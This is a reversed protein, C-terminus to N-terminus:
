PSLPGEPTLQQFKKGTLDFDAPIFNTITGDPLEGNKIFRASNNKYCVAIGPLRGETSKFLPVASAGSAYTVKYGTLFVVPLGDPSNEVIPVTVDWCVNEPKLKDSIVKTKGPISFYFIAPDTIYKEDILKQFVETSSNGTPYAGNHDVAYQFM